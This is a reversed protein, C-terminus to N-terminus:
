EDNSMNKRMKICVVVLSALVFVIAIIFIPFESYNEKVKKTGYNTAILDNSSEEPTEEAKDVVNLCNYNSVTDPSIEKYKYYITKTLEDKIYGELEKYYGDIYERKYNICEYSIDKYRYYTVDYYSYSIWPITYNLKYLCYSTACVRSLNGVTRVGNHRVPYSDKYLTTEWFLINNDKGFRLEVQLVDSYLKDLKLEISSNKNLLYKGNSKLICNNCAEFTYPIKIGIANTLLIEELDLYEIVFDHLVVKNYSGSSLDIKEVREEIIRNDKLEPKSISWNSFDTNIMQCNNGSVDQYYKGDEILKYFKYREETETISINKNLPLVDAFDMAKVNTAFCFLSIALIWIKKNM